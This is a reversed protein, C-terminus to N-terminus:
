TFSDVYFYIHVKSTNSKVYFCASQVIYETYAKAIILQKHIYM